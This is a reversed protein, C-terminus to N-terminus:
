PKTRRRECLHTADDACNNTFDVIPLTPFWIASRVHGNENDIPDIVVVVVIRAPLVTGRRVPWGLLTWGEHRKASKTTGGLRRERRTPYDM